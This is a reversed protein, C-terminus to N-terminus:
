LIIETTKNFKKLAKKLIFNSNLGNYQKQEYNQFFTSDNNNFAINQFAM